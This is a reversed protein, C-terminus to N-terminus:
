LILKSNKLINLNFEENVFKYSKYNIDIFRSCGVSISFIRNYEPCHIKCTTKVLCKICPCINLNNMTIMDCAERIQLCGKCKKFDYSKLKHGIYEKSIEKEKM